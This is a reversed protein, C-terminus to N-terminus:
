RDNTSSATLIRELLTSWPRSAVVPVGFRQAQQALWQGYLWKARAETRLEREPRGSLRRGRGLINTLVVQEETEVLFVAQVHGTSMCARVSPRSWLSPLIADGEIVVPAVTDVHNEIIVELAPSLAQGVAIFGDRLREPPLSWVAPTEEFFYLAETQAPLTVHARQFALRVDDVHLWSRGLHLGLQKALSTKGTGSAGGLLLVEATTQRPSLATKGKRQQTLLVLAENGPKCSRM